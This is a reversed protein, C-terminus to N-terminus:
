VRVRLGPEALDVPGGFGEGARSLGGDRDSRAWRVHTVVLRGAGSRAAQEGAQRASLHIPMVGEPPELWTAESLVLDAGAGLAVPEDSPGTDATYFMAKGDMEFRMGLTPVPHRMPATRVRFPGVEFEAGPEVEHFAFIRGLDDGGQDSLLARVHEALGPPAFLPLGVPREPHFQRAYFYPYLDLLHDPHRHSLIVADVDLIGAYRLLNAMTGTGMDLWVTFGEHSLLYGTCAGGAEPWTGQGGLVLLEVTV